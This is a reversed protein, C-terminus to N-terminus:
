SVSNKKPCSKQATGTTSMSVQERMEQSTITHYRVGVKVPAYNSVGEVSVKKRAKKVKKV